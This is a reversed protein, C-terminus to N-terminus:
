KCLVQLHMFEIMFPALADNNWARMCLSFHKAERKKTDNKM